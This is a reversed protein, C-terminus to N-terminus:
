VILEGPLEASHLALPVGINRTDSLVPRRQRFLYGWARDAHPTL